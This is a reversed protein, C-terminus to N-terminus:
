TGTRGCTNTAPTLLWTRISSRWDDNDGDTSNRTWRRPWGRCRIRPSSRGALKEMIRSVKRTSVGNVYAEQLALMLARESRQCREFLLTSFRGERDRPVRLTLTGVRTHLQRERYGNRYGQRGPTREYPGAGLHDTFEVELMEQYLWEVLDRLWDAEPEKSKVAQLKKLLKEHVSSRSQSM